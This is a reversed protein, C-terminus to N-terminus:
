LALVLFVLLLAEKLEPLHKLKLLLLGVFVFYRADLIWCRFGDGM